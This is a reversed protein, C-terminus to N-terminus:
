KPATQEDAEQHGVYLTKLKKITQSNETRGIKKMAISLGDLYYDPIITGTQYMNKLKLILGDVQDKTVQGSGIFVDTQKFIMTLHNLIQDLDSRSLLRGRLVVTQITRSNSVDVLPNATLLLLDARSGVSIQGLENERRMAEAGNITATRLTDVHSLGAANLYGLEDHLAFGPVNFMYGGGTDTGALFQANIPLLKRIIEQRLQLSALRLDLLKDQKLNVRKLWNKKERPSVYKMEPAQLAKSAQPGYLSDKYTYLTPTNWVDQGQTASVYDEETLQLTSDLLYSKLHETTRYGLTMARSVSTNHPIHGVVDLSQNKAESFIAALMGDEMFNHVKIFDYGLKAQQKVANRAEAESNVVHAYWGIPKQNLITGSVYMTPALLQDNNIQDRMALMWPFGDMDRVSTVGNVVNLLAVSASTLNHVHMDVLGPVLYLDSADILSTNKADIRNLEQGMSKILGHEILLDVGTEVQGTVVNVLNADVILMTQPKHVDLLSSQYALLDAEEFFYSWQSIDAGQYAGDVTESRAAPALFLIFVMIVFGFRLLMPLDQRWALKLKGPGQSFM